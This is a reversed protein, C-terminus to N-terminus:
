DWICDTLETHPSFLSMKESLYPRSVIQGASKRQFSSSPMDHKQCILSYFLFASVYCRSILPGLIPFNHLASSSSPSPLGLSVATHEAWLAALQPHAPPSFYPPRPTGQMEPTSSECYSFTMLVVTNSFVVFIGVLKM